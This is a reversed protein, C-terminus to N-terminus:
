QSVNYYTKLIRHISSLYGIPYLLAACIQITNSLYITGMCYPMRCESVEACGSQPLSSLEDLLLLLYFYSLVDHGSTDITDVVM